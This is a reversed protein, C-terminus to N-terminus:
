FKEFDICKQVYGFKSSFWGKVPLGVASKTWVSKPQDSPPQFFATKGLKKFSKLISANKFM